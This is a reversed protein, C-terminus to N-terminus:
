IGTHTQLIDFTEGMAKQIIEKICLRESLRSGWGGMKKSLNVLLGKPIRKDSLSPTGKEM